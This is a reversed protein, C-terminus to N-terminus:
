DKVQTAVKGAHGELNSIFTAFHEPSLFARVPIIFAQIPSVYVFAYQPTVIIKQVCQMKWRSDRLPSWDEICDHKVTFRRVGLVASSDGDAFLAKVMRRALWHNKVKRSAQWAKLGFILGFVVAVLVHLFLQEQRPPGQLVTLLLVLLNGLEVLALTWLLSWVRIRRQATSHALHYMNFNVLDDITLDFEVSIENWIPAPPEVPIAPDTLPSQYPNTM